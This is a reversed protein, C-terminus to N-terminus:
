RARCARAVRYQWYALLPPLLLEQGLVRLAADDTYGVAFLSVLRGLGGCFVIAWVARLIEGRAEIRPICLALLAGVGLWIGGVFRLTDDLPVNWSAGLGPSPYELGLVLSRGGAYLAIAAMIGQVAQLFPKGANRTISM